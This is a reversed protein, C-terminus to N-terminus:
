KRRRRKKRNKILNVLGITIAGLGFLLAALKVLGSIFPINALVIYVLAGVLMQLVMNKPEKLILKGIFLMAVFKSLYAALIFLLIAILAIPIGIITILIILSALPVAILALFGYLLSLWPKEKINESLKSSISPMILVLIIGVVLITLAGFIISSYRNIKVPAKKEKIEGKIIQGKIQEEKFSASDSTYNLDGMILANEALKLNEAKINVDGQIVGKIIIEDGDADVNGAVDNVVLRGVTAAIDGGVPNNLLLEGGLALVDGSVNGDITIQGGMVRVDGTVDEQLTIRGGGSIVDGQIPAKITVEGGCAHVGDGVPASIVVRGGGAMIHESVPSNVTVEGGFATVDGNVPADISITEGAAYVNENIEELINIENQEFIRLASVTSLLLLLVFLYPMLKKM